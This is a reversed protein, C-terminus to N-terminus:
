VWDLPRYYAMMKEHVSGASPRYNYTFRCRAPLSILISETRGGSKLGFATGRDHLLNFEVYRGRRHLQFDVDEAEWEEWRRKAVIPIYSPIFQEALHKVMAFDKELDGTNWHDFFIGGIGRMEGERHTNVFYQDCEKKFQAYLGFPECAKKWVSHFQRFDDEHPYFPTLDAGGGFWVQGGIELMRFNAHVTPVRPNRPHIILSIGTAWMTAPANPGSKGQPSFKQSLAEPTAGYVLSTNVGANEVVSGTIACTLGGGGDHGLPDKRQWEEKVPKLDEDVSKLAEIIRAQLEVVYAAFDKKVKEIRVADATM